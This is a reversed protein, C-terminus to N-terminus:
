KNQHKKFNKLAMEINEKGAPNMSHCVFEPLTLENDMCFNILWNACDMGTKEEFGKEGAWKNYDTGWLEQPMYHADDLDHDFAILEPFSQYSDWNHQIFKVFENYDRVINWDDKLFPTYGTYAFAGLPIRIDDLFLKYTKKVTQM